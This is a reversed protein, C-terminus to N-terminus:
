NRGQTARSNEMCLTWTVRKSRAKRGHRMQQRSRWPGLECGFMRLNQASASSSPGVRSGPRLLARSSLCRAIQCSWFLPCFRGARTVQADRTETAQDPPERWETARLLYEWVHTAHAARTPHQEILRLVDGSNAEVYASAARAASGWLTDALAQDLRELLEEPAGAEFSGAQNMWDRFRPSAGWRVDDVQPLDPDRDRMELLWAASAASIAGGGVGIRQLEVAASRERYRQRDPATIGRGRYLRAPPLKRLRREIERRGSEDLGAFRVARLEAVEPAPLSGWFEEDASQALFQGVESASVLAADRAMAAWLRRCLQSGDALWAALFRKARGANVEALRVVVEHLLKVIPAYGTRYADPDSDADTADRQWAHVIAVDDNATDRRGAGSRIKRSLHLGSGLGADLLEGLEVLVDADQCRALGLKALGVAKGSTIGVHLVDRLHKAKKAPPDSTWRLESLKEVQARPQVLCVIRRLVAGSVDGAQVLEAVRFQEHDWSAAEHEWAEIVWQWATKFPEKLAKASRQIADRVSNRESLQTGQLALAWELTVREELRGQLFTITAHAVRREVERARGGQRM